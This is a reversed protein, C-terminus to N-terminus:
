RGGRPGGGRPGGSRPGGGHSGAGHGRHGGTTRHAGHAGAGGHGGVSRHGGHSAGGTRGTGHSGVHRHPTAMPRRPPVPRMIRGLMHSIARRPPAYFGRPPPTNPKYLYYDDHQYVIECTSGCSDCYLYSSQYFEEYFPQLYGCHPCEMPRM